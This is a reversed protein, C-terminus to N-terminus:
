TKDEMTFPTETHSIYGFSKGTIGVFRQGAETVITVKDNEMLFVRAPAFIVADFKKESHFEGREPKSNGSQSFSCPINEYIVNETEKSLMTLPDKHLSRRTVTMQDHFTKELIKAERNGRM